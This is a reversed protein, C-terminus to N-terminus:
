RSLTQLENMRTIFLHAALNPRWPEWPRMGEPAPLPDDALPELTIGLSDRIAERSWGAVHLAEGVAASGTLM